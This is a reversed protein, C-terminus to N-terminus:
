KKIKKLLFDNSSTMEHVFYDKIKDRDKNAFTTLIVQCKEKDLENVLKILTDIEEQDMNQQRPEDFMLLNPFKIKKSDIKISSQL